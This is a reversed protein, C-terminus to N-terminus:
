ASARGHIAQAPAPTAILRSIPALELGSGEIERAFAGIARATEPFPHGIGIAQGATLATRALQYLRSLIAGEHRQIDLFQDRRRTRLSLACAADYAQSRPTTLSDVFFLRRSGIVELAPQIKARSATFRSGMHNNVGVATPLAQLNEELVEQIRAPDDRVYVAGPGPDLHVDWPEMPQHLMVDHGQDGIAQALHASYPLRPLISFTLPLRLRLFCEAQRVSFGIDDVILAIRGATPPPPRRGAAWVRGAPSMALGAMGAAWWCGHRLFQRRNM